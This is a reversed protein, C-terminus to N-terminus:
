INKYCRLLRVPPVYMSLMTFSIFSFSFCFLPFFFFKTNTKKSESESHYKIVGCVTFSGMTQQIIDLLIVIIFSCMEKSNRFSHPNHTLHTTYYYNDGNQLFCVIHICFM